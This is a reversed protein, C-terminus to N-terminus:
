EKSKEMIKLFQELVQDPSLTADIIYDAIKSLEEEEIEASAMRNKYDEDSM